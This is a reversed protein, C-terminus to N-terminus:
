PSIHHYVCWFPIMCGDLVCFSRIAPLARDKKTRPTRYDCRLLLMAASKKNSNSRQRDTDSITVCVEGMLSSCDGEVLPRLAGLASVATDNTHWPSIHNICVSCSPVYMHVATTWILSSLTLNKTYNRGRVDDVGVM